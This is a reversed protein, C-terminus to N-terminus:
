NRQLTWFPFKYSAELQAGTVGRQAFLYDKSQWLPIFPVDQGLITQLEQFLKRRVAPDREQRQQNILQNVRENYYFSGQGKTSGDECGQAVSGKNCAMFPQIYSDPDMFDPTWDLIFTPYAGKDLNQYATASEVSKLEFKMVGQLQRDFQAKMISAVLANTTINSRYWLEVKLPNEESYGAENLLALAKETNGDGYLEKFVPRYFESMSVPILSYLPEVQNRFIRSNILNRDIAAALAQRVLVQDLPKAKLNLTLYYIGSGKGEIVQSGDKEAQQRLSRTQDMDLTQYALDISGTRFANFLNASSSFRQVNIGSNIPKPGWYQEFRDLRLSDTGYQTLKYPGTGVFQDPKFQGAKIEYVKPSVACAGSFALLAPFAIFPQKLKITLEYNGSAAISQVIDGLLFAPQGGNQIFRNLSFAMSEANFPTGDHFVIGQRLPIKYTLGDPSIQPLATALQPKLDTSGLEYTYLRDGLNQLLNGAWLEYADAPDLTRLNATTGITIRGTPPQNSTLLSRYSCSVVLLSCVMALILFTGLSKLPKWIRRLPKM